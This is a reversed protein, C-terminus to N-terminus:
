KLIGEVLQEGYGHNGTLDAFLTAAGIADINSAILYLRPLNAMM